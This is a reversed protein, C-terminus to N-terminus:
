ASPATLARLDDESLAVELACGVLFSGGPLATAHIVRAMAPRTGGDPGLPLAISLMTGPPWHRDVVLGIGTRSVNRVRAQRGAGLGAGVPYCTLRVESQYRPTARRETGGERSPGGAPQEEAM